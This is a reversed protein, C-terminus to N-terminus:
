IVKKFKKSKLEENKEERKKEGTESASFLRLFDEEAIFASKEKDNFKYPIPLLSGYPIEINYLSKLKSCSLAFGGYKKVQHALYTHINKENEKVFSFKIGREKGQREIFINVHTEKVNHFTTFASNFYVHGVKINMKVLPSYSTFKSKSIQEWAM